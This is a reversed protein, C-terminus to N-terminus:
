SVYEIIYQLYDVTANLGKQLEQGYVDPNSIYYWIDIMDKRKFSYNLFIRKEWERKMKACRLYEWM